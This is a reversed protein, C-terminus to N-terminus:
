IFHLAAVKGPNTCPTQVPALLWNSFPLSSIHSIALVGFIKINRLDEKLM